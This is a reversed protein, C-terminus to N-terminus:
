ETLGGNRAFLRSVRIRRQWFAHCAFIRALSLQDQNSM